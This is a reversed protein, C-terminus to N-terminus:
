GLLEGIREDRCHHESGFAMVDDADVIYAGALALIDGLEMVPVFQDVARRIDAGNRCLSFLDVAIVQGAQDVRRARASRRPTDLLM